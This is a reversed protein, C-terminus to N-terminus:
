KDDAKKAAKKKSAKKKPAAKAAKEETAAAEASRDTAELAGALDLGATSTGLDRQAGGSALPVKGAERSRRSADRRHGTVRGVELGPVTVGGAADSDGVERVADGDDPLSGKVGTAEPKAQPGLSM